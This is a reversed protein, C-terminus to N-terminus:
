FSLEKAKKTAEDYEWFEVDNPVLHNYTHLYYEAITQKRKKSMDKLVFMIKRYGKPAVSFYYMAENWVTMKASPVNDGSTWRHSKCEVIIKQKKSGLDFAHEKKKNGVGVPVKLNNTLDIGIGSFFKQAALEFERGVHANSKSGKRQFPKDMSQM